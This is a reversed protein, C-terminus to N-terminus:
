CYSTPERLGRSVASQQGLRPKNQKEEIAGGIELAIRDCEARTHWSTLEQAPGVTVVGKGAIRRTAASVNVRGM